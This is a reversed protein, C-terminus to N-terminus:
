FTFIGFYWMVHITVVPAGYVAQRCFTARGKHVLFGAPKDAMNSNQITTFDLRMRFCPYESGKTLFTHFMVEASGFVKIAYKVSPIVKGHYTSLGLM